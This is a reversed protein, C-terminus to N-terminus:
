EEKLMHIKIHMDKYIYADNDSRLAEGDVINRTLQQIKLFEADSLSGKCTDSVFGFMMSQTAGVKFPIASDGDLEQTVISFEHPFVGMNGNNKQFLIIDYM